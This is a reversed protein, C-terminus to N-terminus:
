VVKDKFTKIQEKYAGSEILSCYDALDSTVTKDNAVKRIFYQSTRMYDWNKAEYEDLYLATAKVITDWTYEYTKLFWKFAIVLNTKDGRAYKGSGLKINPWMQQYQDIMEKSVDKSADEIKISDLVKIGKETIKHNKDIYDFLRLSRMELHINVFRAEIGERICYLVYFQNPNLNNKSIETFM